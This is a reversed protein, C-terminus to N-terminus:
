IEQGLNALGIDDLVTVHSTLFRSRQYPPHRHDNTPLSDVLRPNEPTL